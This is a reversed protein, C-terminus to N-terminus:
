YAGRQKLVTTVTRFLIKIDLWLCRNQIYALDIHVREDFETSGRGTIQWLGTLGPVVTLRKRQWPAYTDASFSTPRPGVFSMEGRLINILQPLEDLSTKRLFDGVRTIRPDRILKFDPYQLENLHMLQKKLDEANPVMTRFKFMSFRQGGKGTRRQKFFVPGGPSELKIALAIVLCIPLLLPLVLLVFTIDLIRKVFLYFKKSLIRNKPYSEEILLPQQYVFTPENM